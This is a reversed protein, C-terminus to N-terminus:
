PVNLPISIDMCLYEYKYFLLKPELCLVRLYRIFVSLGGRQSFFSSAKHRQRFCVRYANKTVGQM